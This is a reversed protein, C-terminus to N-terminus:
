QFRPLPPIGAPLPNPNYAKNMDAMVKANKAQDTLVFFGQRPDLVFTVGYDDLFQVPGEADKFRNLTDLARRGDTFLANANGPGNYALFQLITIM